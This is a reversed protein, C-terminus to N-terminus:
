FEPRASKRLAALLTERASPGKPIVVGGHGRLYGLEAATLDKATLIIVPLKRLRENKRVWDLVAFGDLEPMMIDLVMLVPPEHAQLWDLASRGNTAEAVTMGASGLIHTLSERDAEHDEVILAIGEAKGIHQALTAV